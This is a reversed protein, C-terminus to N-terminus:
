AHSGHTRANTLEARVKLTEDTMKCDAISAVISKAEELKHEDPVDTPM